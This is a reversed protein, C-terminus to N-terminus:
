CPASAPGGGFLYNVLYTLDSIDIDASANVDGEEMCVPPPGGGFLYEVLYTLDSIDVLGGSHNMDGRLVCCNSSDLVTLTTYVTDDLSGDSAIFRVNYVGIDSLSPTWDFTGTGDGHDVFGAGGPLNEAYLVPTTGDPDLATVDFSLNSGVVVSQDAVPSINPASNEASGSLQYLMLLGTYSDAASGGVALIVAGDSGFDEWFGVAKGMEQSASTGLFSTDFSISAGGTFLLSGGADAGNDDNGPMGALIDDFSDNNFDGTAVDFGLYDHESRGLDYDFDATADLSPGGNYVFIHGVAFTDIAFGDTGMVLDYHSDGNIRGADLAWGFKQGAEYGTISLDPITDPATGGDYIYIRGQNIETDDYSYAGVALDSFTDGNFDQSAIAFGFREGDASGVLIRDAGYDPSTGGYYVYVKGAKTFGGWDNYYAGVAFDEYGDNNFDGADSVAVGFYDGGYEGTFIHDVIADAGPGGYFLYVAGASTAPIDYFPAGVLLDEYGDHNFDGASSLSKGFFSSADGTLTLDAITDASPGGYYIYVKGSSSGNDDNAPASVVMDRFGDGNFDLSAVTSGYQDGVNEGSVLGVLEFGTASAGALFLTVFISIVQGFM